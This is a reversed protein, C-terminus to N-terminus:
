RGRSKLVAQINRPMSKVLRACVDEDIKNWKAKVQETVLDITVQPSSAACCPSL